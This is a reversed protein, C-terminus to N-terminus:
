EPCNRGYKAKYKAQLEELWRTRMPCDEAQPIPTGNTGPKRPARNPLDPDRDTVMALALDETV